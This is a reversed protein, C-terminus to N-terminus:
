NTNRPAGNLAGILDPLPMLAAGGDKFQMAGVLPGLCAALDELVTSDLSDLAGAVVGRAPVTADALLRLGAETVSWRCAKPTLGTATLRALARAELESVMTQVLEVHMAMAKALDLVRSGPARALEWLAWLQAPTIHCQRQVQEAHERVGSVIVRFLKLVGRLTEQRRAWAVDTDEVTDLRVVTNPKTPNSANVPGITPSAPVPRIQHMGYPFGTDM